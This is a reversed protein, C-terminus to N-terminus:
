KSLLEEKILDYIDKNVAGRFSREFGKRKIALELCAENKCLYASRGTMDGGQDLTVNKDKNMRVRILENQDFSKGCGACRRQPM